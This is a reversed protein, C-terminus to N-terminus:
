QCSFLSFFYSIRVSIFQRFSWNSIFLVSFECGVLLHICFYFHLLLCTPLLNYYNFTHINICLILSSISIHYLTIICFLFFIFAYYLLLIFFQMQYKYQYKVGARTTLIIIIIIIIIFRQQKLQEQLIQTHRWLGNLM